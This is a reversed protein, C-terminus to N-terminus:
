KMRLITLRDGPAINSTHLGNWKRLSAVSTKFLSAISALTDGRKVRYILRAQPSQGPVPATM